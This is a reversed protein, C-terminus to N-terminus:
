RSRRRQSDPRQYHDNLYHLRWGADAAQASPASQRRGRTRCGPIYCRWGPGEGVVPVDAPPPPRPPDIVARQDQEKQPNSRSSSDALDAAREGM